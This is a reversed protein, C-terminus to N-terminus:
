NLNSNDIITLNINEFSQNFSERLNNINEFDEFEVDFTAEYKNKNEDLRILKIYKTYKSIQSLLSENDIKLDKNYSISLILNESNKNNDKVLYYRGWIFVIIFFFALITIVKQNAGLGLGIAICIFLYLLEEPEKIATRFRIISLAGVLGLSLALSSKVITIIFVTTLTLIIFNKSLNKRNSISTACVIYTQVLILSLIGAIILNILTDVVSLNLAGASLYKEFDGLSNFNNM